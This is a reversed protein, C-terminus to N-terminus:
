FGYLEGFKANMYAMLAESGLPKGTVRKVLDGARYRRGQRHINNQLWELLPAFEGRAFMADLDGLDARAKAFFQAAYLNGLSYTPFYGILGASWHIDQLCGDKDNAPTIGFYKTFKENWAAPIDDVGLDGSFFAREMEFRLLIHLNYTAEDSETRIFM